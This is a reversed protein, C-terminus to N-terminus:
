KLRQQMWGVVRREKFIPKDISVRPPRDWDVEVLSIRTKPRCRTCRFKLTIPDRGGGLLMMLDTALFHRVNGCPCEARVLMGLRAAKGLTDIPQAM